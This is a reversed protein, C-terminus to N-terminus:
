RCLLLRMVDGLVAEADAGAGRTTRWGVVGDPRVLVAGAPGTGHAEAFGGDPDVVDGDPGVRHARLPVGAVSGAAEVWRHGDPGALLAFQPGALDLTSAAAGALEVRLHPARTGPRGGPLRPDVVLAGDEAADEAADDAADDALVAASRHVPGLEISPDDLPPAMDDRPLEPDVRLAYRTYAQEVVMRSIPRREADYTDLLGPGATGDLVLALKWALNHADAVGTNGGFGGTPPMAHAADGALFVRGGRFSEATAAAATWQQVTEIEVPIDDRGLAKRVMAVCGAEDLDDAVHTDRSGDPNRTSFVALFGSDATISFRFFGLLEPHNVYVVSLNRDGILERMDARFYITVCRAFSGRGALGIGLAERVPSHSGDAAVLYQARVTQEAGDDRGRLVATVGDDDQEFRVLETGFRHDAGLERARDRLLPELGIQTIFLRATPSLTEVGENFNRFFYTVEPSSLSAVSVIAGNQQFEKAAAAEVAAQLGVSRFTEMTRQHFSAARPHVATGRHREVVLHPVGHSALLVSTSLGVLSGGVVLVPVDADVV